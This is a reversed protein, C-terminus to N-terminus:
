RVSSIAMLMAVAPLYSQAGDIMWGGIFAFMGGSVCQITGCLGASLRSTLALEDCWRNRSRTDSDQTSTAALHSRM